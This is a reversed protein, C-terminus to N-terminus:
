DFLKRYNLSKGINGEAAKVDMEHYFIKLRNFYPDFYHKCKSGLLSTNYVDEILVEDVAKGTNIQEDVIASLM